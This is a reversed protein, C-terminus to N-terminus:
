GREGEERGLDVGNCFRDADTPLDDGPIVGKEHRSPFKTRREGTRESGESIYGVLERVIEGSAAPQVITRFGLSSVGRLRRARQSRMTSAPKGGPTTFTTGPNPDVVPAAIEECMSMSLIAKVPETTVPRRIM